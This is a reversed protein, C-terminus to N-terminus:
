KRLIRFNLNQSNLKWWHTLHPLASLTNVTPLCCLRAQFTCGLLMRIKPPCYRLRTPTSHEAALLVSKFCPSFCIMTKIKRVSHSTPHCDAPPIAAGWHVRLGLGTFIRNSIKVQPKIKLTAEHACGPWPDQDLHCFPSHSSTSSWTGHGCVWDGKKLFGLLEKWSGSIDRQSSALWKVM